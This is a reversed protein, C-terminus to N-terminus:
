TVSTIVIEYCCDQVLLLYQYQSVIGSKEAPYLSRDSLIANCHAFPPIIIAAHFGPSYLFKQVPDVVVKDFLTDIGRTQASLQQQTMDKAKTADLQIRIEVM